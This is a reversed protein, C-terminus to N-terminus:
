RNEDSAILNDISSFNSSRAVNVFSIISDFIFNKILLQMFNQMM